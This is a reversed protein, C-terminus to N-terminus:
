GEQKLSEKLQQLAGKLSYDIIHNDLHIVMGGLIEPKLEFVLEINMKFKNELVSKLQKKVSIDLDQASFVTGKFIGLERQSLRVVFFLIKELLNIRGNEILTNIFNIVENEIDLKILISEVVELRKEAKVLPNRLFALLGSNKKLIGSVDGLQDMFKKVCKKEKAAKVFSSAYTRSIKLETM